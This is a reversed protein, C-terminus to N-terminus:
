GTKLLLRLGQAILESRGIKRKTALADARALLEREMTINVRRAGQGVPPRGRARRDREREAATMPRTREFVFPEDYRKTAERLEQLNMDQYRKAPKKM